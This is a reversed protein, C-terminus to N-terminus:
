VDSGRERQCVPLSYKVYLYPIKSMGTHTDVMKAGYFDLMMAYARQICLM